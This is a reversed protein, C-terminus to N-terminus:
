TLVATCHGPTADKAVRPPHGGCGEAFMAGTSGEDVEECAVGKADAEACVLVELHHILLHIIYTCKQEFLM